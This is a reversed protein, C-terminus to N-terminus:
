PAQQRLKSNGSDQSGKKKVLLSGHRKCQHVKAWDMGIGLQGSARLQDNASSDESTERSQKSINTAQTGRADCTVRSYKTIVTFGHAKPM